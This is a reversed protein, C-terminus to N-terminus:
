LAFIIIGLIIMAVGGLFQVGGAKEKRWEQVKGLLTQNSAIFLVLLLPLIFVLNYLILYILGRLHEAKDHLLGLIMLYPGGTCPFECLGVFGGLIFAALISGKEMLEAIKRHAIRPIRLKIPFSPFFKNIINIAGLVILILAGVKAMFHPTNFLYLAQLIGIGILVYVLFIGFIYAGGIRLIKVRLSGLNFMFAVTLLFVSFACLNFSDIIAAAFLIPLFWKAGASVESFLPTNKLSSFYYIGGVVLIIALIFWYIKKNKM